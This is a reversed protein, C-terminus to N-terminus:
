KTKERLIIHLPTGELGFTKRFYNELYRKYSYHMLDPDNVFLVFTPPKVSVQTGYLIKLRRGKDSPPENVAIADALCDNLVGTSIRFTCQQYVYNVLETIREVRQGTKASIFVSPAYTMFSLDNMLRQRYQNMTNTQKEITDWKNMVLISGKGEEHVLGAIKTDQETVEMTSDIVILAVDCRRIASLARIVSYRELSDDIRSKRRIGATDIIVYKQGDIEIPTDIADRTTGPIDSVIVREQGLLRNVLSSKGVNPKGVVAIHIVDDDEETQGGEPFHKVIEDLLDGIGRKHSASISMPDGIALNYFEYLNAEEEQTDIKNVALVIPKESKRLLDAVDRDTSTIGEKGDTIFLIVDATEIAIEAQYKMQQLLEDQSGPEIGGTDIMTFRTNLWESDAYIRDRTVGPTDEVISIRKGALQNFLTSKGVNPRGVIAVIPKAM